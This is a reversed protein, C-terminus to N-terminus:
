SHFPVGYMHGSVVAANFNIVWNYLTMAGPNTSSFVFQQNDCRSMQLTANVVIKHTEHGIPYMYFNRKPVRALSRSPLILRFYMASLNPEWLSASNIKFDAGFASEGGSPDSYDFPDKVGVSQKTYTVGDVAEASQVAWAIMKSMHNFQTRHNRSVPDTKNSPQFEVIEEQVQEILYTHPNNLFADRTYDDIYVFEAYLSVRVQSMVRTAVATQSLADDDGRNVAWKKLENWQITFNVQHLQLAMLPLYSAPRRCFYFPLKLILVQQFEAAAILQVETEFRGVAEDLRTDSPESIEDWFECFRGSLKVIPVNGIDLSIYNLAAYAACNVFYFFDAAETLGETTAGLLKLASRPPLIVRLHCPGLMDGAGDVKIQTNITGGNSLQGNTPDMQQTHFSYNAYQLSKTKWM